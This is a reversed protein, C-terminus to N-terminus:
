DPGAKDPGIKDPGTKVALVPCSAALLVRQATSGMLLKGVPSRRRLGIVILGAGVEEAASVIEEAAERGRVPQRVEHEVGADSLLRRVQAIDSEPAFADDALADGRSSNMVLIPERRLAAEQVAHALAARGEPKPAYGVVITM